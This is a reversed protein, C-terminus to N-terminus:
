GAAATGRKGWSAFVALSGGLPRHAVRRADGLVLSWLFVFHAGLVHNVGVQIQKVSLALRSEARELTQGVVLDPLAWRGLLPGDALNEVMRVKQQRARHGVHAEGPAIETPEPLETLGPGVAGM